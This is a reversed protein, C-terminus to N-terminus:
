GKISGILMGKVFYKQIFPYVLLIPVTAIIILAYKIGEGIVKQDSLMETTLNKPVLNQVLIDRLILQLPYLSKTQLYIMARFYENWHDVGYFLCMVAMVPKCLPVVIRVLIKLDNAGDIVASEHLELPVNSTIFTRMIIVNWTSMIVPIIMVWFNDYMHLKQILIYAPIMGGGFFMTFTIFITWFKRGYFDKRALPYAGLTTMFVNLFTGIGTYLFTMIYGNWVDSNEFAKQYGLLTFGKPWLTVENKMVLLPNSLSAALVYLMPYLTTFCFLVLFFAITCHFIKEGPTEKLKIM